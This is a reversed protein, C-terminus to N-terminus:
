FGPVCSECCSEEAHGPTTDSLHVVKFCRANRCTSLAMLQSPAGYPSGKMATLRDLAVEDDGAPRIPYCQGLGTRVEFTPPSDANACMILSCVESKRQTAGQVSFAERGIVAIAILLPALRVM